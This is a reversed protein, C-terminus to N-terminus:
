KRFFPSPTGYRCLDPSFIHIRENKTLMPHFASGDSGNISNSQDSTWFTLKSCFLM